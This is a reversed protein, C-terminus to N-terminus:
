PLKNFEKPYNERLYQMFIELEYDELTSIFNLKDEQPSILYLDIITDFSEETVRQMEKYTMSNIFPDYNNSTNNKANLFNILFLLIILYKM